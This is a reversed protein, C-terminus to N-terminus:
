TTGIEVQSRPGLHQRSEVKICSKCELIIYVRTSFYGSHDQTHKIPIGGACGYVCRGELKRLFTRVILLKLKHMFKFQRNRTLM